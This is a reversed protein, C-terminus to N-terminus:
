RGFHPGGEHRRALALAEACAGRSLLRRLLAPLV